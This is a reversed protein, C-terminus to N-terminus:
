EEITLPVKEVQKARDVHFANLVPHADDRLSLILYCVSPDFALRKDEESPRSPTEPHSHWNGLLQWGNTRIDKVARLQDAPNMSFHENTHDVNELLYVREVRGVVGADAGGDVEVGGILGCAEEPVCARAHALIAEYDARRLVLANVM